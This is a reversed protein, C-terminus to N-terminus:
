VVRHHAIQIGFNLREWGINKGPNKAKLLPLEKFDAVGGVAFRYRHLESPQGTVSESGRALTRSATSRVCLRVSRRKVPTRTRPKAQRPKGECASARLQRTASKLSVMEILGSPIVVTCSRIVATNMPSYWPM